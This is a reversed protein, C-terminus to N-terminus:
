YGRDSEANLLRLAPSKNEESEMFACVLQPNDLNEDDDPIEILDFIRDHEICFAGDVDVMSVVPIDGGAEKEFEQLRKIAESLKM